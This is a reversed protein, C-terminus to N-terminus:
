GEIIVKRLFISRAAIYNGLADKYYLTDKPIVCEIIAYHMARGGKHPFARYNARLWEKAADLTTCCHIYGDCIRNYTKWERKGNKM